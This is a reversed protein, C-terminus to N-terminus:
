WLHSLGPNASRSIWFDLYGRLSKHWLDLCHHCWSTMFADHICWTPPRPKHSRHPWGDHTQQCQWIWRTPNLHNTKGLSGQTNLCNGTLSSITKSTYILIIINRQKPVHKFNRPISWRDSSQNFLDHGTFEPFASTNNSDSRPGFGQPKWRSQLRVSPSSAEKPIWWHGHSLFWYINSTGVILGIYLGLNWPIDGGFIVLGITKPTGGRSPRHSLDM